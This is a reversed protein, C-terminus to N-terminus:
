MKVVCGCEKCAVIGDDLQFTSVNGCECNYM